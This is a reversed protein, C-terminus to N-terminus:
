ENTHRMLEEITKTTLYSHIEEVDDAVKSIKDELWDPYKYEKADLEDSKLKVDSIKQLINSINQTAMYDGNYDARVSRAYRAARFESKSM